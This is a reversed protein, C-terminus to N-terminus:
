DFKIGLDAGDYDLVVTIFGGEKLEKYDGHGTYYEGTSSDLGLTKTTIAKVSYYGPDLQIFHSSGDKISGTFVKNYGSTGREKVYVESIVITPDDSENRVVLSGKENGILKCSSLAITLLGFFLCFIKKM